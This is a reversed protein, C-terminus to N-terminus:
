QLQLVTRPKPHQDCVCSVGGGYKSASVGTEVKEFVAQSGRDDHSLKLISADAMHVAKTDQANTSSMAGINKFFTSYVGAM